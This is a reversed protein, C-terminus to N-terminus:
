LPSLDLNLTLPSSALNKILPNIHCQGVVTLRDSRNTILHIPLHSVYKSIRETEAACLADYAPINGVNLAKLMTVMWFFEGSELAKLVPHLLQM